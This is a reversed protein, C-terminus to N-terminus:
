KQPTEPGQARLITGEPRESHYFVQTEGYIGLIALHHRYLEGAGIKSEVRLVEGASSVEKILGSHIVEGNEWRVFVDGAVPKAVPKYGNENLIKPVESDSIWATGALFTYGHCNYRVSAQELREAGPQLRIAEAFIAAAGSNGMSVRQLTEVMSGQDTMFRQGTPYYQLEGSVFKVFSEHDSFSFPQGPVMQPAEPHEVKVHKALHQVDEVRMQRRLETVSAWLVSFDIRGDATRGQGNQWRVIVTEPALGHDPLRRGRNLAESVLSRTKADYLELNAKRAETLSGEVRSKDSGAGAQLSRASDGRGEIPVRRRGDDASSGKGPKDM